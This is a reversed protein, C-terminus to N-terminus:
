ERAKTIIADATGIALVTGLWLSIQQFLVVLDFGDASIKSLYDALWAFTAMYFRISGLINKIKEIM